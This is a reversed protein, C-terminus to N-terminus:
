FNFKETHQNAVILDKTRNENTSWHFSGIMENKSQIKKRNSKKLSWDSPKFDDLISRTQKKTFTPPKIKKSPSFHKPDLFFPCLIQM